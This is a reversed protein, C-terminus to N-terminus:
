SLAPLRASFPAAGVSSAPEVSCWPQSRRSSIPTAWPRIPTPRTAPWCCAPFRRAHINDAVTLDPILSLEQFICAIGAKMAAAPNRFVVPRSELEMVGSDPKVVGAMVKILTSKGAGNEGLVAHIRAAACELRAEELARVGGYRKSIRNMRLLPVADADPSTGGEPLSNERTFAM